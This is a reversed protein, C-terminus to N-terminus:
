GAGPRVLGRALQDARKLLSPVRHPGHMARVHAAAVAPDIGIASVHLPTRSRGRVVSVSPAGKFARKAVGIVAPRSPLADHLRAGLGPGRAGLDVYGDVIVADPPEPLRSLAGLVFPLEREFFSGPRYPAPTATSRDVWEHSAGASTWAHFAVCGTRVADEGYHVDVAILLHSVSRLRYAPHSLGTPPYVEVHTRTFGLNELTRRSAENEPHHGAFLAGIRLRDFAHVVVARAAEVALGHGWHEPRLQFGLELEVLVSQGERPRLGCAGVHAGGDRLFIPWYQIGHARETEIEADLRARVATADLAGRADLYQMVRRDGWLARALEFDDRAWTRFELRPTSAPVRM